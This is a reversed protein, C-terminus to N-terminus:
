GLGNQESADATTPMAGARSGDGVLVTQGNRGRRAALGPDYRWRRPRRMAEQMMLVESLNDATLLGVLRGREVVPLTRCACDQLRALATYLMDRPEATVFNHQMVDGVRAEAGSRALAAALDRRTLIGMLQGDEVVPFDAQFGARVLSLARSLPDDPRLSQFETIMAHMVPIGDLAARMQAM